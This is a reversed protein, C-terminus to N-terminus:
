IEERYNNFDDPIGVRHIEYGYFFMESTRVGSGYMHLDKKYRETLPIVKQNSSGRLSKGDDLERVYPGDILLDINELLKKYEENKLLEEYTFGSYVIVGMDKKRRITEIMETLAAAQLFPEGGSITLGEADSLIIEWALAQTDIDVGAGLAQADPATCDKCRRPCGQVWLCYRVGPGLTKVSSEKMYVNITM